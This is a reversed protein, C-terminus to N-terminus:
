FYKHLQQHLSRAPTAGLSSHGAGLAGVLPTAAGLSSSSARPTMMLKRFDANTMRQSPPEEMMGVPDAPAM